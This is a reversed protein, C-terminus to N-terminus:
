PATVSDPAADSCAQMAANLTAMGAETASSPIQRTDVLPDGVTPDPFDDVGHERICEAFALADDQEGASRKHGTFGAPQLDRCADLAEEFAPADPDLSSGNVVGDVTLEGSAGPDPFARVGNDRMCEAFRVAQSQGTTAGGADDPEEGCGAGILALAALATPIGRTM